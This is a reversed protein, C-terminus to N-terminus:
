EGHLSSGRVRLVANATHARDAKCLCTHWIKEKKEERRM